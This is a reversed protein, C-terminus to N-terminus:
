TLMSSVLNQTEDLFRKALEGPPGHTFGGILIDPFSHLRLARVGPPQSAGPLELSLGVGYYSDVNATKDEPTKSAESSAAM